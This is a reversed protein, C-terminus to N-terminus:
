FEHKLASLPNHQPQRHQNILSNNSVLCVLMDQPLSCAFTAWDSIAWIQLGWRHKTEVWKWHQRIISLETRRVAAEFILSYCVPKEQLCNIVCPGFPNNITVSQSSFKFISNCSTDLSVPNQWHFVSTASFFSIYLHFFFAGDLVLVKFCKVEFWKIFVCAESPIKGCSECNKCWSLRQGELLFLCYCKLTIYM